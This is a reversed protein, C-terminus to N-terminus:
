QTGLLRVMGARGSLEAIFLPQYGQDGETRSARWFIDIQNSVNIVVSGSMAYLEKNEESELM